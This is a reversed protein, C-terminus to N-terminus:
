FRFAIGFLVQRPALYRAPNRPDTGREAPSNYLPDRWDNPVPDGYEYAKGTVPNIVQGNKADLLNRVEMSLSIGKYGMNLPLRYDVKLDFNHWNKATESLYSSTIEEYVPRGLENTSALYYPTYRYGSTFQYSLYVNLGNLNLATFTTSDPTFVVGVNVNWPRDFALFQAKTTSVEGNQAIQLASERASNSKGKAVQYAVNGFTRFYKGLRYQAGIEVGYINAYDQNIYFTKTTNRGSQDKVIVSRSVIYDFRNNNFVTATFALDKTLKSKYGIEYSVNVEPDLDPNGLSSLFSRDQYTPDLGAYVFRPHPLRMSHGYNFYLVNNVTVPFSVNIRPLLRTKWRLGFMGFTKDTYDERVQDIVPANPDAVADDAFKGPAWYNLRLGLTASIGNYSIKDQLFIGGEVPNVKWIDNSSGISLNETVVSDNIRIPAGVWPATVDVWQYETFTNQTGFSFENSKNPIYTAKLNLTYEEAYHDHWTPTIGGNNTLGGDSTNVFYIGLEQSSYQFIDIPYTIINDEDLIQDVTESRFPRGNADARLNTFLRGASLSIGWNQNILHNLNLATLNSQHTYTTANDLNLSRSYQYGPTLISNFGVIQLSRTNQNISLSHQNTLSLKTGPKLQYALKITNTYANNQRPAWFDPDDAFMSSQLQDATPGFYEDTLYMTASTFLTLKKKTGPIPTGLNLEVRDTNFSTAWDSNGLNDRQWSGSIEFKDGGERINTSVVGSSGGGYEAGAGGTILSINSIAGSAVDVGFGTGALPDQASIGDVIYETEYVRGGRIQLGDQTKLVGAQQGVIEQVDRVNMQSIEEQKLTVESAAVELNVQTSRGVVTVENLSQTQESLKIDLVKNEGSKFTIGTYLKTEFGIFQVKIDYDGPKIDNIVYNGEIDVSAGKYTGVLVVSAGLLPEGTKPDVVKGSLSANQGWVNASLCICALLAILITKNSNM